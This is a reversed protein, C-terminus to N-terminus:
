KSTKIFDCLSQKIWNCVKLVHEMMYPGKNNEMRSITTKHIGIEKAAADLSIDREVARYTKVAKGFSVMDFKQKSLNAM